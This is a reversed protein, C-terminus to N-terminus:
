SCIALSINKLVVVVFDEFIDEVGRRSGHGTEKSTNKGRPLSGKMANCMLDLIIM